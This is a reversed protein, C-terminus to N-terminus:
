PMDYASDLELPRFYGKICNPNRVCIQIHNKERFGASPYLPEGEPFVARVSHYEPQGNTERLSHLMKIVFCDLKRRLLDSNKGVNTNEPLPLKRLEMAKIMVYYSQKVEDLHKYNMLNLCRGLDIIAGLVAPEKIRGKSHNDRAWQIARSPDQEWFYVGSGLWDYDNTSELLKTTGALVNEQLERECGHFGLVFHPHSTYM